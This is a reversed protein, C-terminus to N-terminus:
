VFSDRRKSVRTLLEDVGSINLKVMPHKLDNKFGHEFDTRVTAEFVARVLSTLCIEVYM